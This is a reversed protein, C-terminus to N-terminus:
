FVMSFSISGYTGEGGGSGGGGTTSDDDSFQHGASLTLDFPRMRFPNLDHFTIFGGLRQADFSVNGMAIAEPGWTLKDRHVGLRARAWYTDFATSYSGAIAAYIPAGYATSLDGAVKFGTETGRPRETPDDPSSLDFNQVEVGVFITGWMPGRTFKYGLMLDGTVGRGTGPNRDYEMWAGYARVLVGDRTLDGNWAVIVGDYFYSAGEVGDAGSFFVGRPPQGSSMDGAGAPAILAFACACAAVLM